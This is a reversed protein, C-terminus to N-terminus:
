DDSGPQAITPGHVLHNRARRRGHGVDGVAGRQRYAPEPDAPDGRHQDLRHELGPGAVELHHRVVRADVVPPEAQQEARPPQAPHDGGVHPLVLLEGPLVQRALELHLQGRLAGQGLPHPRAPGADGGEEGPGPDAGLHGLAAHRPAVVRGSVHGQGGRRLRHLGEVAEVVHELPGDRGVEPQHPRPLAVPVAVEDVPVRGAVEVRERRHAALHGHGLHLVQDVRALDVRVLHVGRAHVHLPHDRQGRLLRGVLPDLLAGHPSKM